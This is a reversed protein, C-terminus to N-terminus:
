NKHFYFEDIWTLQALEMLNRKKLVRVIPM